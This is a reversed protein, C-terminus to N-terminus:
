HPFDNSLVPAFTSSGEEVDAGGIVDREFEIAVHTELHTASNREM